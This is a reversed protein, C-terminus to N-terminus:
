GGAVRDATKGPKQRIAFLPKARRHSRKGGGALEARRSHRRSEFAGHRPAANLRHMAEAL